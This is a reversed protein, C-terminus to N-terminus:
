ATRLGPVCSATILFAGVVCSDAPSFLLMSQSGVLFTSSDAGVKLSSVPLRRKIPDEPTDWVLCVVGPTSTPGPEKICKRLIDIIKRRLVWCFVEPQNYATTDHGLTFQFPYSSLPLTMKDKHDQRIFCVRQIVSKSDKTHFDFTHLKLCFAFLKTM